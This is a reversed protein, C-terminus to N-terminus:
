FVWGDVTMNVRRGFQDDDDEPQPPRTPLVSVEAVQTAPIDSDMMTTDYALNTIAELDTVNHFMDYLSLQTERAPSLPAAFEAEASRAVLGPNIRYNPPQKQLRRTDSLPRGPKKWKCMVIYATEIFYCFVYFVFDLYMSSTLKPGLNTQNDDYRQFSLISQTSWREHLPFKRNPITPIFGTPWQKEIVLLQRFCENYYPEYVQGLKTEAKQAKASHPQEPTVRFQHMFLVMKHLQDDILAGMDTFPQKEDLYTKIISKCEPRRKKEEGLFCRHFVESIDNFILRLPQQDTPGSATAEMFASLIDDIRIKKAAPEEEM